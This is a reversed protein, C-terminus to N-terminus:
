EVKKIFTRVNVEEYGLRKAYNITNEDSIFSLATEKGLDKVVKEALKILQLLVLGNRFEKDIELCEIHPQVVVMVQGIIKDNNKAFIVVSTEPWDRNKPDTEKANLGAKIFFEM